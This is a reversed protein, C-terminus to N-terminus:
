DPRNPSSQKLKALQQQARVVETGNPALDIYKQYSKRASETDGTRDYADAANLYAIARVPDM